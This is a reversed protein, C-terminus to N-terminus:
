FQFYIFQDRAQLYISVLVVKLLIYCFELSLSKIRLNQSVTYYIFYSLTIIFTVLYTDEHFGLSFLNDYSVLAGFLEFTHNVDEARFPIWALMVAYLTLSLSLFKVFRYNFIYRPIFKENLRYILLFIAHMLGWILFSLNSGHWMGMLSWSLLLCVVVLLNLNSPRENGFFLKILPIYLYDRIWESLSIHWRTWFERVSQSIYPDKFNDVLKIGLIRASGLAILSYGFFDFYIQWGFLFAMTSVDLFGLLHAEVDFAADVYPSINDALVVKLFLGNLFYNMGIRIDESTVNPRGKLQPLLQRARMIPGAVLQPFFIIFLAFDLYSKEAEKEKRYVDVVYSTAQFTYFSIGLPLIISHLIGGSYQYEFLIEVGELLLLIYKFFILLGLNISVSLVLSLKKLNDKESGEIIRASFFNVVTVLLILPLFRYDWFLYFVISLIALSAKWPIYRTRLILASILFFILYTWTNFLM